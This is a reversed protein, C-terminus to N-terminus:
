HSCSISVVNEVRVGLRVPTVTNQEGIVSVFSFIYLKKKRSPPLLMQGVGGGVVILPDIPKERSM